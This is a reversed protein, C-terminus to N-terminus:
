SKVVIKRPKSAESKAISLKLVGNEYTADVKDADVLVPLTLSVATVGRKM